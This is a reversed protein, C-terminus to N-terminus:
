SSNANTLGGPNMGMRAESPPNAQNMQQPMM